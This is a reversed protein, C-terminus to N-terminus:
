HKTEPSKVTYYLKVYMIYRDDISKQIRLSQYLFEVVSIPRVTLIRM